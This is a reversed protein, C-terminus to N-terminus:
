YLPWRCPPVVFDASSWQNSVDIGRMSNAFVEVRCLVKNEVIFSAMVQFNFLCGIVAEDEVVASCMARLSTVLSDITRDWIRVDIPVGRCPGTGM